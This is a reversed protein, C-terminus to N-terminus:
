QPNRGRKRQLRYFQPHRFSHKLEALSFTGEATIYRHNDANYLAVFSPWWAIDGSQPALTERFQGDHPIQRAPVYGYSTGADCYVFWVFRAGDSNQRATFPFTKEHRALEAHIPTPTCFIFMVSLILHRARYSRYNTM